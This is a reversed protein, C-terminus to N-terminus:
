DTAGSSATRCLRVLAIADASELRFAAGRGQFFGHERILHAHLPTLEFVRGAVHVRLVAKHARYGCGFPCPIRGMVEIEEVSVRGDCAPCPTELGRDAAAHLGDIVDAVEDPTVGARELEARDAAVIEQLSRGDTGLFGDQSLVGPAMRERISREGPNAKM